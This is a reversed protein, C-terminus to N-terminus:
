TPNIIVTIGRYYILYQYAVSYEAIAQEVLSDEPLLWGDEYADEIFYPQQSGADPRNEECYTRIDELNTKILIM